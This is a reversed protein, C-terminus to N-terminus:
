NYVSSSRCGCDPLFVDTGATPPKHPRRIAMYITSTGYNGQGEVTFGTANLALATAFSTTDEVRTENAFLQADGNGDVIGRMNDFIRWDGVYGSTVSTSKIMVWQPEWGLDVFGTSSYSGCKIISEDSDTGFSADDHAFIYAVYNIGTGNTSNAGGLSFVSSTPETDNWVSSQTTAANVTDLRLYKTAGTSRHYVYWNDVGDTRKVIIMGPVSGLNHAISRGATGNGTYTVVDFFGPAKRFSWSAFNAGSQNINSSTGISFGNNNFSTIFISSTTEASTSDSSLKKSSGRVTDTLYHSRTRVDRQKLWVLGGEGALDIGNTITQATGTGEYLFTSFVDDVYLPDSGGAGATALVAQQTIPDM